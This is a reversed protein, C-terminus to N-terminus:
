DIRDVKGFVDSGLDGTGFEIKLLLKENFINLLEVQIQGTKSKGPSPRYQGTELSSFSM